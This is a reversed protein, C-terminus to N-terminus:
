AIAGILADAAKYDELAVGTVCRNYAMEWGDKVEEHWWSKIMLGCRFALRGLKFPNVFPVFNPNQSSELLESEIKQISVEM